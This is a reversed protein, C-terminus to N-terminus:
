PIARGIREPQHAFREHEAKHGEFFPYQTKTLRAEERSFHAYTHNRLDDFIASLMDEVSDSSISETLRNLIGIMERHDADLEDDGVSLDPTWDISRVIM